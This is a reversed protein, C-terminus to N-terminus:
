FQLLFLLELSQFEDVVHDLVKLASLKGELALLVLLFEHVAVPVTGFQVVLQVINGVGFFVALYDDVDGLSELVLVMELLDCLLQEFFDGDSLQFAVM